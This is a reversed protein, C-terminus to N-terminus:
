RVHFNTDSFTDTIRAFRKARQPLFYFHIASVHGVVRIEVGFEIPQQNWSTYFCQARAALKLVNLYHIFDYLKGASNTLCTNPFLVM